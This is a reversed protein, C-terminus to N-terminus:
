RRITSTYIFYVMVSGNFITWITNAFWTGILNGEVLYTWSWSLQAVIMLMSLVVAMIMSTKVTARRDEVFRRVSSYIAIVALIVPVLQFIFQVM